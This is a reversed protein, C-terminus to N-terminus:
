FGRYELFCWPSFLSCHNYYNHSLSLTILQTVQNTRQWCCCVSYEMIVLAWGRSPMSESHIVPGWVLVPCLLCALIASHVCKPDPGSLNSFTNSIPVRRSSDQGSSMMFWSGGWRGPGPCQLAKWLVAWDPGAQNWTNGLDFREM